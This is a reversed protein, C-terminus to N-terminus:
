RPKREKKFHDIVWVAVPLVAGTLATLPLLYETRFLLGSRRADATVWM